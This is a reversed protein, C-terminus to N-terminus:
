EYKFFSLKSGDVRATAFLIRGSAEKGLIEVVPSDLEVPPFIVVLDRWLVPDEFRGAVDPYVRGESKRVFPKLGDESLWIGGGRCVALVSGDPRTCFSFNSEGHGRNYAQENTM